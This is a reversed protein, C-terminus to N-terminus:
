LTYVLTYAFGIIMVAVTFIISAIGGPARYEGKKYTQREKYVAVIILLSLIPLLLGGIVGLVTVFNLNLVALVLPIAMALVFSTPRKFSFDYYFADVLILSVAIYPTVVLFMTITYFLIKYAGSNISETAISQVNNGFAGIFALIFLAYVLMSISYAIIMVKNFKEKRNGLEAKVEPVVGFVMVTFLTVGFSQFVTYPNYYTLNDSRISFVVISIVLLILAIKIFSLPTEAAEVSAYGKYILPASLAFAILVGVYYPVDFLGSIASGLAILYAIVIGYFVLIQLVLVVSRFSKGTYKSILVPLQHLRKQRFSLEGTFMTVLISAIGLLFILLLGLFFGSKSIAYPLALMGAGIMTGIITSIAALERKDM